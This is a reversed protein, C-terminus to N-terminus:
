LRNIAVQALTRIELPIFLKDTLDASIQSASRKFYFKFACMPVRVYVPKESLHRMSCLDSIRM